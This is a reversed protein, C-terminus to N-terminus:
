LAEISQRTQEKGRKRLLNLLRPLVQNYLHYLPKSVPYDWAGNTRVVKGGLGEKFRYVGWMPDTESFQDPAGWLDYMSCNMVKARQMAEWQLLYTPMKERHMACSMGYMYWAKGGFRFLVLGAIPEGEVEAILLDALGKEMFTGWARIYYGKERITFGDRLSTEAYMRYILDLDEVNGLRTQVGKRQALRINYRTKQKMRALLTADDCTLDILFTNKFQVQSDSLRWGLNLFDRTVAEGVPETQQEGSEPVGTGVIVDPDVKIFVAGLKRALQALDNIVRNRLEIDGWDLIPGKPSYLIRFRAAFGRTPIERQLVMAAAVVRGDAGTWSKYIPKWGVFAKLQGWEVTQLIHAGPLEALTTDWTDQNV